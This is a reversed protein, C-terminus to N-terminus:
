PRRRGPDRWSSDYLCYTGTRISATLHEGIRRSAARVQGMAHAIRRQVNTRARETAAGVRRERGGVGFARELEAGLAEIEAGARELRGLDGM